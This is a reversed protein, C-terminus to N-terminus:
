KKFINIIQDITKKTTDSFPKIDREKKYYEYTNSGFKMSMAEWDLLMEAIYLNPMDKINDGDVWYEPHHKNITYHHKWAKNFLEKDKEEDSCPYFYLRYADFEELSYKSADHIAINVALELKNIKLLNCLEEGYKKHALKINSIHENIYELYEQEKVDREIM